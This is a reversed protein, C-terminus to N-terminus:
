RKSITLTLVQITHKGDPEYVYDITIPIFLVKIM